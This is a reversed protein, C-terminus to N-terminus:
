QTLLSQGARVQWREKRTRGPGEEGEKQNGVPSQPQGLSCLIGRGKKRLAIQDMTTRNKGELGPGKM